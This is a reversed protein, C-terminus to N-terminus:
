LGHTELGLIQFHHTDLFEILLAQRTSPAHSRTCNNPPSEAAVVVARVMGRQNRLIANRRDYPTQLLQLTSSPQPLKAMRAVKPPTRPRVDTEM